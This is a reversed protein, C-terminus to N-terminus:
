PSQIDVPGSLWIHPRPKPAPVAADQQLRSQRAIFPRVNAHRGSDASSSTLKTVEEPARHHSFTPAVTAGSSSRNACVETGIHERACACLLGAQKSHKVSPRYSPAVTRSNWPNNAKGDGVTERM